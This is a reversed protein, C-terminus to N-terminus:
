FEIRDKKRYVMGSFRAVLKKDDDFVDVNYSALKNSASVEKAEATLKQGRAPHFYSINANIALAVQGHSNSAAAFAFDALTFIAGGQVVDVANLHNDSIEMEAVARGPEVEVLRIGAFAAFRDREFFKAIKNM